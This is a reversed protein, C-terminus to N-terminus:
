IAYHSFTFTVNQVKQRIQSTIAYFITKLFIIKHQVSTIEQMKRQFTSLLNHDTRRMAM